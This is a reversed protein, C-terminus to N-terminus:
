FRSGVVASNSAAIRCPMSWCDNQAYSTHRHELEQPPNAKLLSLSNNHLYKLASTENSQQRTTVM